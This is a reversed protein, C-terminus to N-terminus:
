YDIGGNFAIAFQGPSSAVAVFSASGTANAVRGSGGTFTYTGTATTESIFGGSVDAYLEDGNAAVFRVWGTIVGGDGVLIQEERTYNGLHTAQGTASASLLLGDETPEAGTLTARAVGRFPVEEDATAAPTWGLIAVAILVPVFRGLSSLRTMPVEM